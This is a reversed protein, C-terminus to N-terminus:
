ETNSPDMLSERELWFADQLERPVQFPNEGHCSLCDAPDGGVALDLVFQSTIEANAHLVPWGFHCCACTCSPDDPPPNKSTELLSPEMWGRPSFRAHCAACITKDV